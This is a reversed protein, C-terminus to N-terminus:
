FAFPGGTWKSARSLIIEDYHCIFYNERFNDLSFRCIGGGYVFREFKGNRARERERESNLDKRYFMNGISKLQGLQPEIFNKGQFEIQEVRILNSIMVSLQVPKLHKSIM